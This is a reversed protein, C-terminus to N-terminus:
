EYLVERKCNINSIIENKDLASKSFDLGNIIKRLMPHYKLNPM